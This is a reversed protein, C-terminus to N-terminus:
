ATVMLKFQQEGIQFRISRGQEPKSPDFVHQTRRVWVGNGTKNNEVVWGRAPALRVKAHRPELFPDDPRCFACSPDSGIWYESGALTIRNGLGHRAVEILTPPKVAGPADGWGITGDTRLPPSAHGSPPSGGDSQEFRFRTRGVLFESQDVLSHSSFRFYVGHTSQLDSVVWRFGGDAAVRVIEVHRSSVLLDNPLQFDGENRGIVFREGRLRVTEGEASGDDCVILVPTPPRLTPRYPKATSAVPASMASEVEVAPDSEPPKKVRSRVLIEPKEVAAQLAARIEEDTEMVTRPRHPDTM